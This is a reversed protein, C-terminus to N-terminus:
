RIKTAKGLKNHKKGNYETSIKYLYTGNSLENGSSDKGDFMINVFRTPDTDPIDRSLSRVPRGTMTFLEIKIRGPSGIMFSFLTGNSDFPSPYVVLNDIAPEDGISMIGYVGLNTVHVTVTNQVTDVVAGPMVQWGAVTDYYWVKVNKSTINTGDVVGAPKEKDPYPLTLVMYKGAPITVGTVAGSNDKAVLEIATKNLLVRNDDALSALRGYAALSPSTNVEIIVNKDVTNKPVTLKVTGSQSPVFLRNDKTVDMMGAISVTKAPKGASRCTATYMGPNSLFVSITKEGFSMITETSHVIRNLGDKLEISVLGTVNRVFNMNMDYCDITLLVSAPVFVYSSVTIGIVSFSSALV